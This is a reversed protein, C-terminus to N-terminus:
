NLSILAEAALQLGGEEKWFEPLSIPTHKAATTQNSVESRVCTCVRVCMRARSCVCVCVCVCACARVHLRARMATLLYSFTLHCYTLHPTLANTQPRNVQAHLALFM